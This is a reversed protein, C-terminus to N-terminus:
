FIVRSYVVCVMVAVLVMDILVIGKNKGKMRRAIGLVSLMIILWIVLKILFQIIMFQGIDVNLMISKVIGTNYIGSGLMNGIFTLSILPANMYPMGYTNRMWVFEIGYVIVSMVIVFLINAIYKETRIKKRGYASSRELLIMGSKYELAESDAAILMIGCILALSIMIKRYMGREGLIIEYGRDSIMWAGIGYDEKIHGIYEIKDSYERSSEIQKLIQQQKTRLNLYSTIDVDEDGVVEGYEQLKADIDERQRYLDDLYNEFYTYDVGGHEIYEGDMFKNDDTYYYQGTSCVYATVILVVIIVWGCHNTVILKHIEKTIRHAKSLLRQYGVSIKDALRQILSINKMPKKVQFVNVAVYGMVCTLIILVFIVVSFVPFVFTNVGWNRYTSLTDNINIISIINIYHLGNWVNHIDIHSYIFQEAAIFVLISILAYNRSRFLVFVAWIITSLSVICILSILYLVAVYQIKSLPYTFRAFEEITQIPNGLDNVGGSQIMSVLFTSWYIVSHIVVGAVAIVAIQKLALMTRGNPSSYTLEWMGNDRQSFLDYIVFIMVAMTFFYQYYYATHNRVGKYEDEMVVVNDVRKFDSSTQLINAYSFSGARNFISYKKLKDANAIITDVDAQYEEIYSAHSAREKNLIAEDKVPKNGYIFFIINAVAVFALLILKKYNIVRKLEQM